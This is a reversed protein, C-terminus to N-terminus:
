ADEVLTNIGLMNGQESGCSSSSIRMMLEALRDSSVATTAEVVAVFCMLVEHPEIRLRLVIIRHVLGLVAIDRECILHSSIICLVRILCQSLGIIMKFLPALIIM